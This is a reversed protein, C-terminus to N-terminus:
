KLVGMSFGLDVMYTDEWHEMKPVTRYSLIWFDLNKKSVQNDICIGNIAESIIKM